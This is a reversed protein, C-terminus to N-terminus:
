GDARWTAAASMLVQLCQGGLREVHAGDILVDAGRISCLEAALPAAAKLDLTAALEVIQAEAGPKQAPAAM